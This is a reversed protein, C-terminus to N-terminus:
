SHHDNTFLTRVDLCGKKANELDESTPISMIHATEMKEIVDDGLVQTLQPFDKLCDPDVRGSIM